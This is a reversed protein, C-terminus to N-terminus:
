VIIIIIWSQMVYRLPPRVVTDLWSCWCLQESSRNYQFNKVLFVTKFRFRAWYTLTAIYM